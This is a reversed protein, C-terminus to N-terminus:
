KGIAAVAILRKGARSDRYVQTAQPKFGSAELKALIRASGNECSIERHIKVDNNEGGSLAGAHAGFQGLHQMRDGAFGHEAM